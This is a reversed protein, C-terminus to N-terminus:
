KRGFISKLAIKLKENFTPKALLLVKDKFGMDNSFMLNRQSTIRPNSSVAPNYKKVVKLNTNINIVGLGDYFKKGKETNIMVVNIGKDDDFEPMVKNIGWFDAITIDSGSKLCKAPCHHCSPRLYLDKLFGRLFPNKDLTYSLSVTNKEGEATAKALDLVFSFKKWGNTKNRFSIGEIKVGDVKELADREPISHIPRSSVSNKEDGQCAVNEMEELLYWRFMGPSPVGHCIFDVTLLNDYNKRLYLKLGAIQCPTGSFLVIRNAKLFIEVDKYSNGIQSQVYKSGRFKSCEEITEAYSHVVEWKKNFSAGFVVGKREIVNTALATFVGGSSSNMRITEDPNKAAYTQLPEREEGQNIVPCVKECLGCNICLETDVRPYLFGEEDEILCICQQPCKQVCSECGCCDKKDLVNVM